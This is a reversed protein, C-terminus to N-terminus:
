QTVNETSLLLDALATGVYAAARKAQEPTNAGSGIELLLYGPLLEQNYSSQRLSIPRCLTPLMQNLHERLQLALALNAQWDYATGNCDSGVVAMVQAVEGDATLLRVYEGDGTLIADRHLDIVCVISPYEALYRRVTELSREYAGRLTPEDHRLTCHLTEIGKENLVRCLEAGVGIVNEEEVTSYTLDGPLGDMDEGGNPLYSETTHTHLILVKPGEGTFPSLPASLLDAVNPKYPTENHLYASGLSPYSLDMEVIPTQGSPQPSQGAPATTLANPPYTGGDGTGDPAETTAAPFFSRWPDLLNGRMAISVVAFAAVLLTCGILFTCFVRSASGHSRPRLTIPEDGAPLLSNKNSAEM